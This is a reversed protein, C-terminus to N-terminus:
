WIVLIRANEEEKISEALEKATSIANDFDKDKAQYNRRMHEVRGSDCAGGSACRQAVTFEREDCQLGLECPVLYAAVGVVEEAGPRFGGRLYTHMVRVTAKGHEDLVPWKRTLQQIFLPDQLNKPLQILIRKGPERTKDPGSIRMKERPASAVHSARAVFDREALILPDQVDTVPAVDVWPNSLQANSINVCRGRLLEIAKSRPADSALGAAESDKKWKDSQSRVLKCEAIIQRAYFEGGNAPDKLGASLLPAYDTAGNYQKLYEATVSQAFATSALCAFGLAALWSAKVM